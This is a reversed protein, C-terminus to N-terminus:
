RESITWANTWPRRAKEVPDSLGTGRKDWVIYRTSVALQEAVITFLNTPDDYGDVNSIWGPVFILPPADAEGLV